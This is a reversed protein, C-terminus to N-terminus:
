GCYMSRSKADHLPFQASIFLIAPFRESSHTTRIPDRVSTNTNFSCGFFFGVSEAVLWEVQVLSKLSFFALSSSNSLEWDERAVSLFLLLLCRYTFNLAAYTKRLVNEGGV